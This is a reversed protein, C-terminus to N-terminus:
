RSAEPAAPLLEGRVRELFSIVSATVASEAVVGVIWLPASLAAFRGAAVAHEHAAHGDGGAVSANGALVVVALLLAVSLVSAIVSAFAGARAATARRRAFLYLPRAAATAAGLVCANLGIVTLGGHGLLALIANVMFAATFGLGPGLLIGVVPAFSLHGLPGIPVSMAALMVASLAALLTLRDARDHRHRYSTVGVIALAVVFGAIWLIPPLVGDPIHLHTV